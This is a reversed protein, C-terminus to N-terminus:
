IYRRYLLSVSLALWSHSVQKTQAEQQISRYVAQITRPAPVPGPRARPSNILAKLNPSLKSM